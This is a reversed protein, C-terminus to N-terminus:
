KTSLIFINTEDYTLLDNIRLYHIDFYLIVKRCILVLTLILITAFMYTPIISQIIIRFQNLVKIQTAIIAVYITFIIM